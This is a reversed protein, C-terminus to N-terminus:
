LHRSKYQIATHYNPATMCPDDGDGQSFNHVNSLPQKCYLHTCANCHCPLKGRTPVPSYPRTNSPTAMCPGDINGQSFNQTNILSQAAKLKAETACTHTM